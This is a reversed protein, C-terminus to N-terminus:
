VESVQVPTVVSTNVSTKRMECVADEGVQYWRKETFREFNLEKGNFASQARPGLWKPACYIQLDNVLDAVLLSELLIGGAEVWLDHVGDRGILEIIHDVDLRDNYEPVPIFKVGRQVLASPLKGSNAASYFVTIPLTNQWIQRDASLQLRRDVIYLRKSEIHNKLVVSLLPDDQIITKATTLLADSRQRCHYTHQKLEPGTINVREGAPGAIKGDLSLAIKATVWPRQHSLWYRYSTYFADIEPLSLQVAAVGAAALQQHGQGAVQPNPDKFGYIVSSIGAAVIAQTCPPTRGYHSCPELSVYLTAGPAIGELAQLAAVEAHPEGCAVHVGESIVRGDNVIVAGVSPNPACYGRRTGALALARRLYQYHQQHQNM